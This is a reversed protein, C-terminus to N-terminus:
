MNDLNQKVRLFTEKVFANHSLIVPVRPHTAPDYTAAKSSLQDLETLTDDVHKKLAALTYPFFHSAYQQKTAEDGSVVAQYFTQQSDVDGMKGLESYLFTDYVPGSIDGTDKYFLLDSFDYGLQEMETKLHLAKCFTAPSSDDLFGYRAFLPSPNTPDGLSMRLPTGAPIDATSYAMVNGGEDLHMAVSCDTGHNFMDAMPALIKEGSLEMARTTAVNYAWKLIDKNNKTEDSLIPVLKAAKQFNVSNIREAMALWAAYPPLVDFCAFTMAAGNNFRRPMANLWPFWPSQDGKEYEVLIKIFVRFLPIKEACKGNALEQEAQALSQGFEDVSKSASFILESPVYVISQGAPVDAQTAAFFDQGDYTTLEFGDAQQVGYQQAWDSMTYVDRQANETIDVRSPSQFSFASVLGPALVVAALALVAQSLNM